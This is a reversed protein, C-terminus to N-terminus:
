SGCAKFIRLTPYDFMGLYAYVQQVPVPMSIGAFAPKPRPVKTESALSLM